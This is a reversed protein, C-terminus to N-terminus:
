NAADGAAVSSRAHVAPPPRSAWFLAQSPAVARVLRVVASWADLSSWGRAAVHQAPGFAVRVAGDEDRVPLGAADRAIRYEHTTPAGAAVAAHLPRALRRAFDQSWVALAIEGNVTMSIPDLNYTGVVAVRGDFVASKGHVNHEDGRVFLRMGPVRALLEPWQELFLAQSLANDSSTPGNTVITIEVGRRGAEVLRDVAADTLVLYPSQILVERRASALLRALGRSVEDGGDGLRRVSNLIRV